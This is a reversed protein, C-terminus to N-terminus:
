SMANWDIRIVGRHCHGSLPVEGVRDLNIDVQKTNRIVSIDIRIFVLGINIRGPFYM